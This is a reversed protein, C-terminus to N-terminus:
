WSWSRSHPLLSCERFLSGHNSGHITQVPSIRLEGAFSPFALGPLLTVVESSNLRFVSSGSSSLNGSMLFFWERGLRLGGDATVDYKADEGDVGRALSLQLSM